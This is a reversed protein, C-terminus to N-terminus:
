SIEKVKGRNRLLKLVASVVSFFNDHSNAVIDSM